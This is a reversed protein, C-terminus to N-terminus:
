CNVAILQGRGDKAVAGVAVRDVRGDLELPPNGRASPLRLSVGNRLREEAARGGDVVM